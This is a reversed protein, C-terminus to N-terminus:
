VQNLNRARIQSAGSSPILIPSSTSVSLRKQTDQKKKGGFLLGLFSATSNKNTINNTTTDLQRSSQQQQTSLTSSTSPFNILSRRKIRDAEKQQKQQRQQRLARQADMLRLTSNQMKKSFEEDTETTRESTEDDEDGIVERIQVLPAIGDIKSTPYTTSPLLMSVPRRRIVNTEAPPQPTDIMSQRRKIESAKSAQIATPHKEAQKRQLDDFIDSLRQRQRMARRAANNMRVSRYLINPPSSNSLSYRKEVGMPEEPPPQKAEFTSARLKAQNSCQFPSIKHTSHLNTPSIFRRKPEENIPFATSVQRASEDLTKQRNVINSSGEQRRDTRESSQRNANDNINPVCFISDDLPISALGFRQACKAIDRTPKRMQVRIPSIDTSKVQSLTKSQWFPLYNDKTGVGNDGSHFPPDSYVPNAYVVASPM